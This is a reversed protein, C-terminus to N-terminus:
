SNAVSGDANSRDKTAGELLLEGMVASLVTCGITAASENILTDIAKRM